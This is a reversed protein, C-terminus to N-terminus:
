FGTIDILHSYRRHSLYGTAAILDAKPFRDKRGLM